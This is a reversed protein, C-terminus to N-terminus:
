SLIKKLDLSCIFEIRDIGNEYRKAGAEFLAYIRNNNITIQELLPPLTIEKANDVLYNNNNEDYEFVYIHSKSRRRYSNSIILYDKNDKKYFLMGQTKAPVNFNRIYKLSIKEDNSIIDFEKVLISENISFNGIYLHNDKITLFAILNKNKNQFDVLGDSINDFAYKSTVKTKTLFEESRYANLIGNNDPIWILNNKDDYIIGGVHSKTNLDVINIVDGSKNIVYCVSNNNKNEDYATILYVDNMISLGQPIMDKYKPIKINAQVLMDNMDPYKSMINSVSTDIYSGNNSVMMDDKIFERMDGNLLFSCVMGAVAIGNSNVYVEKANVNSFSFIMVFAILGVMLMKM